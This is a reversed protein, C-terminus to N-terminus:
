IHGKHLAASIYFKNQKNRRQMFVKSLLLISLTAFFNSSMRMANTQKYYATLNYYIFLHVLLYIFSYIFIYITKVHFVMVSM